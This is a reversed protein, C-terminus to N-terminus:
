SKRNKQHRGIYGVVVRKEDKDWAFAIRITNQPDYSTGKGVHTDLEYERNEVKTRYWDPYRDKTEDTQKSKYSWGSCAEKLLKDFKTDRGLEQTRARHYETGLWALVNYVEEPRQFPTKVDSKSNLAIVLQDPFARKARKVADEVDGIEAQDEEKEGAVSKRASVFQEWWDRGAKAELERHLQKVKEKLDAAKAELERNKSEIEKIGASLGEKEQRVGELEQQMAADPPTEVEGM